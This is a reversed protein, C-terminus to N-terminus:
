RERKQLSKGTKEAEIHYVFCQIKISQHIDLPLLTQKGSGAPFSRRSPPYFIQATPFLRESSSPLPITTLRMLLILQPGENKSTRDEINNDCNEFLNMKQNNPEWPLTGSRRKCVTIRSFLWQLVVCRYNQINKPFSSFREIVDQSMRSSHEVLTPHSFYISYSVKMRGHRWATIINVCLHASHRHNTPRSSGTTPKSFILLRSIVTFHNWSVSLLLHFSPATDTM